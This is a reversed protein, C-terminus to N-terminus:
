KEYKAIINGFAVYADRFNGFERSSEENSDIYISVKWGSRRAYLAVQIDPDKRYIHEDPPVDMSESIGNLEIKPSPM